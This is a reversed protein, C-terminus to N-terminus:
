TKVHFLIPLVIYTLGLSGKRGVVGKLGNGDGYGGGWQLVEEKVGGYVGLTKNVEVAVILVSSITKEIVIPVLITICVM